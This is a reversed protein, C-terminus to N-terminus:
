RPPDRGAELSGRLAKLGRRLLGAVAPGTMELHSAIEDLSWGLAHRLVLVKGQEGPLKSLLSAIELVREEKAAQESPTPQEAQIWLSLRQSSEALAADLSVERKIDRKQRGHDRAANALNRALIQRLWAARQAFDVGHFGDMAEHADLLTQQVMDSPDVIKRLMPSLGADALIRLYARYPELEFRPGAPM